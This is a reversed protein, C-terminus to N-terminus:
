TLLHRGPLAPMLESKALPTHHELSKLKMERSIGKQRLLTTSFFDTPANALLTGSPMGFNREEIKQNPEGKYGIDLCNVASQRLLNGNSLSRNHGKLGNLGVPQLPDRLQYQVAERSTFDAPQPPIPQISPRKSIQPQSSRLTISQPFPHDQTVPITSNTHYQKTDAIPESNTPKSPQGNISQTTPLKDQSKVLSLNANRRSHPRYGVEKVFSAYDMKKQYKYPSEIKVEKFGGFIDDYTPHNIRKYNERAEERVQIFSDKEMIRHHQGGGLLGDERYNDSM